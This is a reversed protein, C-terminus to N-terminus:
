IIGNNQQIDSSSQGDNAIGERLAIEAELVAVNEENNAVRARQLANLLYPMPMDETEKETGDHSTYIGM